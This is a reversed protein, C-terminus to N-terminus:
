DTTQIGHEYGESKGILAALQVRPALRQRRAEHKVRTGIRGVQGNYRRM